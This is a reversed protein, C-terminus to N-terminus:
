LDASAPTQIHKPCSSSFNGAWPSPLPVWCTGPPCPWPQWKPTKQEKQQLLASLGIWWRETACTCASCDHKVNGKWELFDSGCLEERNKVMNELLTFLILVYQQPPPFPFLKWNLFFPKQIKLKGKFSSFVLLPCFDAKYKSNREGEESSHSTKMKKRQM